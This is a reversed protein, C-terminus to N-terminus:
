CENFIGTREKGSCIARWYVPGIFQERTLRLNVWGDEAFEGFLIHRRQGIPMNPAYLDIIDWAQEISIIDAHSIFTM